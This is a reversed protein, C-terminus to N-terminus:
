AFRRKLGLCFDPAVAEHGIMDVKDCHGGISVAQALGKGIRMPAIGALDICAQSRCTMQPLPAAKIMM